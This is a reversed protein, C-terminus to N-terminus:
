LKEILIPRPKIEPAPPEVPAAPATVTEKAPTTASLPAAPPKRAAVAGDTGRRRKETKSAPPAAKVTGTVPAAVPTAIKESAPPAREPPPAEPSARREITLQDRPPLAAPAASRGQAAEDRAESGARWLEPDPGHRTMRFIGVIGATAVLVGASALVERRIVQWRQRLAERRV